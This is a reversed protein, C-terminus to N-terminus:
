IGGGGRRQAIATDVEDCLQEWLEDAEFLMEFAEEDTLIAGIFEGYDLGVLTFRCGDEGPNVVISPRLILNGLPYGGIDIAVPLSIEFPASPEGSGNCM